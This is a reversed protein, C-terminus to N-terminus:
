QRPTGFSIVSPNHKDGKIMLEVPRIVGVNRNINDVVRMLKDTKEESIDDFLSPQV